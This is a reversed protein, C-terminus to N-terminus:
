YKALGRWCDHAPEEIFLAFACGVGFGTGGAVVRSHRDERERGLAGPLVTVGAGAVRLGGRMFPRSHRWEGSSREHGSRRGRVAMEGAPFIGLRFTLANEPNRHVTYACRTARAEAQRRPKLRPRRFSGKRILFFSM